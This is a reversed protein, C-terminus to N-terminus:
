GAPQVRAPARPASDEIDVAPTRSDIVLGGACDAAAGTASTTCSWIDNIMVLALDGCNLDAIDFPFMRRKEAPVASFGLRVRQRMQETGDFLYADIDLATVQNPSDNQLMFYLRCSNTQTGAIDEVQYLHLLVEGSAATEDQALAAGTLGLTTILCMAATRLM